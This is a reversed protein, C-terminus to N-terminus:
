QRPEGYLAAYIMANQQVTRVYARTEAFPIREAFLDPHEAPAPGRWRHVRSPGANYAALAYPLEGHRRLLDALYLTGLRLNISPDRLKAPTYGSVGDQRALMRGTPPMIQTLGVAGASSRADTQFLSEQRILGAVLFPDLGRRMAAAVIEDRYPLPYVIRLLRENWAGEDRQIARGVRVADLMRGRALLAEGLEYLGGPRAAFWARAREIEFTEEATLGLQGLVVIREAAGTAQRALVDNAPPSPALSAHLSLGIAAAARLGYFSVPDVQRVAAYRAAAGVSDGALMLATAAWYGAQQARTENGMWGFPTAFVGAADAPRGATLEIAGLRMAADIASPGGPDLALAERYLATASSLAGRDHQLGALAFTAQARVSAPGRGAARRFTQAAADVQGLRVQIRGLLV